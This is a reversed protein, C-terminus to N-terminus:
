VTEAEAAPTRPEEHPAAAPPEFKPATAEERDGYDDYSARKPASSRSPSSSTASYLEDQFGQMGKKFEMFSQGLGRAVSPLKSGFLLVAVVGIVLMETTGLPGIIALM